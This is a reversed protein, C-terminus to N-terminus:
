LQIFEKLREAKEKYYTAMAEFVNTSCRKDKFANRVCQGSVGAREAIKGIDEPSKLATWKEILTNNIEM